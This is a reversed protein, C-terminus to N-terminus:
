FGTTAVSIAVIQLNRPLSSRKHARVTSATEASKDDQNSASTYHRKSMGGRATEPENTSNSARIADQGVATKPGTGWAAMCNRPSRDYGSLRSRRGVTQLQGGPTCPGSLSRARGSRNQIGSWVAPLRVRDVEARCAYSAKSATDRHDHGLMGPPVRGSLQPHLHLASLFGAVYAPLM